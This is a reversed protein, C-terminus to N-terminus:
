MDVRCAILALTANKSCTGDSLEINSSVWQRISANGQSQVSGRSSTWPLSSTTISSLLSLRNEQLRDFQVSSFTNEFLLYKRGDTGRSSVLMNELLISRSCEFLSLSLPMDMSFFCRHQGDVQLYFELAVPLEEISFTATVPLRALLQLQEQRARQQLQELCLKACRRLRALNHDLLPISIHWKKSLDVLLQQYMSIM